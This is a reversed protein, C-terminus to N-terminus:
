LLDTDQADRLLQELGRFKLGQFYKQRQRLTEEEPCMLQSNITMEEVQALMGEDSLVDNM